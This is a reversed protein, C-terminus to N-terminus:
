DVGIPRLSRLSARAWRAESATRPWFQVQVMGLPGMGQITIWMSATSDSEAGLCVRAAAGYVTTDRVPTACRSGPWGGRYIRAFRQVSDDTARVFQTAVYDEGPENRATFERRMLMRFTGVERSVLASNSPARGRVPACAPALSLVLALSAVRLLAM